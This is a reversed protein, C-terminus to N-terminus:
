RSGCMKSDWHLELRLYWSLCSLSDSSLILVQSCPHLEVVPQSSPQPLPSVFPPPFNPQGANKENLATVVRFLVQATPAPDVQHKCPPHERLKMSSCHSGPCKEGRKKLRKMRKDGKSQASPLSMDKKYVHHVKQM